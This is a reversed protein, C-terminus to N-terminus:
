DDDVLRAWVTRAPPAEVDSVPEPPFLEPHRGIYRKLAFVLWEEDSQYMGCTHDDRGVAGVTCGCVFLPMDELVVLVRGDHDDVVWADAHRRSKRHWFTIAYRRARGRGENVDPGIEPAPPEGLGYGNVEAELEYPM